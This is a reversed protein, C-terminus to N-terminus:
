ARSNSKITFLLKAGLIYADSTNCTELEYKTINKNMKKDARALCKCSISKVPPDNRV